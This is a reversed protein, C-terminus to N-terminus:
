NVERKMVGAFESGGELERFDVNVLDWGEFGLSNLYAEIDERKRGKFLGASEVDKTDVIKYEYRKM